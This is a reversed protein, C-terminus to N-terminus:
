KDNPKKYPNHTIVENSAVYDKKGDIFYVFSSANRFGQEENWDGLRDGAIRHQFSVVYQVKDNFDKIKRISPASFNQM